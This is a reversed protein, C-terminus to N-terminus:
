PSNPLKSYNFIILFFQQRTLVHCGGRRKPPPTLGYPQWFGGDPTSLPSDDEKQFHPAHEHHLEPQAVFSNNQKRERKERVGKFNVVAMGLYLQTRLNTM